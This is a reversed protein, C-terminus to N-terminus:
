FCVCQVFATAVKSVLLNPLQKSPLRQFLSVILLLKLGKNKPCYEATNKNSFAINIEFVGLYNRNGM